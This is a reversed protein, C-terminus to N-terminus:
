IEIIFKGNEKSATLDLQRTKLQKQEGVGGYPGTQTKPGFPKENVWYLLSQRPVSHARLKQQFHMTTLNFTIDEVLVILLRNFIQESIQLVIPRKFDANRAYKNTPKLFLEM